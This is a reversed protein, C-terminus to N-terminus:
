DDGLYGLAALQEEVDTGGAVVPPSGPVSLSEVGEGCADVQCWPVRRLVPNASGAPHGWEGWEGLANGHDSTVLITADVTRAWRQVEGLVWRLNDRYAELFAEREIEGDRVKAWDDKGRGDGTSFGDLAWGATWETRSRFPTHPQMYHVVLRDVGLRDRQQWAYLGRGTLIDPPVTPLERPQWQDRWVEDLYVLGHEALPSASSRLFRSEGGREGSFPNATVYGAASWQTRYRAGFTEALWEMSASGVSVATQGNEFGYEPAIRRWTDVRCGDLVLCIDWEGAWIPTELQRAAPWLGKTVAELGASRITAIVGRQRVIRRQKQLYDSITM